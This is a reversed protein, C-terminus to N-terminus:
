LHKLHKKMIRLAETPAVDALLGVAYLIYKEDVYFEPEM